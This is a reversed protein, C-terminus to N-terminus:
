CQAANLIYFLLLDILPKRSLITEKSKLSGLGRTPPLRRSCLGHVALPGITPGVQAILFMAM